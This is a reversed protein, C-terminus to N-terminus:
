SRSARPTNARNEATATNRVRPDFVVLDAKPGRPDIRSPRAQPTLSVFADQVADELTVLKRERMSLSCARSPAMAARIHRTLAPIDGDSAIM